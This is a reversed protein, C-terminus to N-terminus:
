QPAIGDDFIPSSDPILLQTQGTLMPDKLDNTQAVNIWQLANGLRSAAIEFLNSGIVTFTEM